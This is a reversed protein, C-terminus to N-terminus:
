WDRFYRPSGMAYTMTARWALSHPLYVKIFRNRETPAHAEEGNRLMHCDLCASSSAASLPKLINRLHFIFPFSVLLFLRDLFGRLQAVTKLTVTGTATTGWHLIGGSDPGARIGGKEWVEYEEFTHARFSPNQSTFLASRLADIGLDSALSDRAIEHWLLGLYRRIECMGTWNTTVLIRVAARIEHILIILSSRTAGGGLTGVASRRLGFRFALAGLVVIRSRSRNLGEGVLHRSGIINWRNPLQEQRLVHVPDPDKPMLRADLNENAVFSEDPAVSQILSMHFTEASPRLGCVVKAAPENRGEGKGARSGQRESM